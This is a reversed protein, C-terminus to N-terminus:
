ACRSTASMERRRRVMEQQLRDQVVSLRQEYQLQMQLKEFEQQREREREQEYAQARARQDQHEQEQARLEQEHQEHEQARQAQESELAREFEERQARLHEELVLVRQEEANMEDNVKDSRPATTLLGFSVHAHDIILHHQYHPGM